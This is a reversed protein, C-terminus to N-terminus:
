LRLGYTITLTNAAGSKTWRVHSCPMYGWGFSYSGNALATSAPNANTTLLLPMVGTIWTTGGDLSIDLTVTETSLGALTFALAKARGVPVTVTAATAGTYASPGTFSTDSAYGM